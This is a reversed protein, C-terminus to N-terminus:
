SSDGSSFRHFLEIRPEMVYVLYVITEVCISKAIVRLATEQQKYLVIDHACRGAESQASSLFGCLCLSYLAELAALAILALISM